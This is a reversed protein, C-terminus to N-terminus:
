NQRRLALMTIDDYQAADGIFADVASVIQELIYGAGEVPQAILAHFRDKGFREDDPNQADTVGDTYVLLLDDGELNIEGCAFEKDLFLGVAPGTPMLRSKIEGQDLIFPPEHGANVYVISGAEVDLVGYFLTTFLPRQHVNLIYNNTLTVTNVLAGAHDGSASSIGPCDTYEALNLTARLLSRFLAMYLASGVGKNCVDGLMLGYHTRSLPFVDYFDGAVERAARFYTAIEWGDPQPIDVPLFGAQIDRGIELERELSRLYLGELDSLRKKELGANLRAELIVPDFPKPLYDEAGMEIGKVVSNIDSLASILVVPIHRWSVDEKLRSLVEFGDMGPMMIDLLIMDPSDSAVLELAQEGNAAGLTEYGLDELEQELYDLNYPEDDVILIKAPDAM